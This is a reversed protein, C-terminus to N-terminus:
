ITEQYEITEKGEVEIYEIRNFINAGIPHLACKLIVIGKQKICILVFFKEESM